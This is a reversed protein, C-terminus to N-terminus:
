CTNLGFPATEYGRTEQIMRCIRDLERELGVPNKPSRGALDIQLGDKKEELRIWVRRPHLFFTVFLGAMIMIFGAWVIPVGPDRSVQLGTYFKSEIDELFFTYPKFASPNMRPSRLMTEPFKGKLSGPDQFVWFEHRKEDAGRVSVLVAPSLKGSPDNHVDIVRFVGERDPLERPHGRHVDFRFTKGPAGAKELRLRITGPIKGYSAQYFTIGQFTVPHNVSLPSELLVERGRLFKLDSRYEKPSGNEYYRVTFKECAVRFPLKIVERSRTIMVRDSSEGEPINIFGDFGFLSGVIAGALILIVSFHVIFVGFYGLGGKEGFFYVAKGSDKEHINRYCRKLIGRLHNIVDARDAKLTLSRLPWNGEFVKDRDPRPVRRYLRWNQPFRDISCILLNLALLGIFLRFWLSHYLDSFQPVVTGLISVAALGLLLFFTLRLSKLFRWLPHPSQSKKSRTM